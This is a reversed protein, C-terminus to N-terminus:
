TTVGIACRRLREQNRWFTAPLQPRKRWCREMQSLLLENTDDQDISPFGLTRKAKPIPVESDVLKLITSAAKEAESRLDTEEEGGGPRDNAARQPESILKRVHKRTKGYYGPENPEVTQAYAGCGPCCVPLVDEVPKSPEPCSQTATSLNRLQSRALLQSPHRNGSLKARSFLKRPPSLLSLRLTLALRRSPIQRFGVARSYTCKLCHSM